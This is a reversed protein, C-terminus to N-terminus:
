IKCAMPTCELTTVKHNVISRVDSTPAVNSANLVPGFLKSHHYCKSLVCIEQLGTKYYLIHLRIYIIIYAHAHTTIRYKRKRKVAIHQVSHRAFV